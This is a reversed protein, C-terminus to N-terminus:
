ARWLSRYSLVPPRRRSLPAIGLRFVILRRYERVVRITQSLIVGVLALV